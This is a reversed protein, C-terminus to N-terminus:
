LFLTIFSLVLFSYPFSFDCKLSIINLRRGGGRIRQFFASAKKDIIDLRNGFPATELGNFFRLPLAREAGWNQGVKVGNRM